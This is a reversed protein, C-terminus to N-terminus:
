RTRKEARIGRLVAVYLLKMGLKPGGPKVDKFLEEAWAEMEDLEQLSLMQPEVEAEIMVAGATPSVPTEKAALRLSISRPNSNM